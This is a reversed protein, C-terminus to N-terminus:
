EESSTFAVVRGNAPFLEMEQTSELQDSVCSQSTPADCLRPLTVMMSKM